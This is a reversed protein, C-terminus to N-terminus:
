KAVVCPKADCPDILRGDPRFFADKQRNAAATRRPDEHSDACRADAAQEGKSQSACVKRYEASETPPINAKPPPLTGADFYLLMSNSSPLPKATGLAYFPHEDPHRGTALAPMKVTAGITRAEIEAAVTTVQHDGFAVDLAVQHRQTLPYPHSTLHQAYGNTEARDWLMQLVGYLLAQDIPNPYAARLVGLYQTFDVSRSLLLSYNMGPVGLVARTWETSVATAAGGNISGMSNGDFYVEQPDIVSNGGATRFAENARFGQPHRMLRALFLTNLIGQQGRDAITPFKSLNGLVALANPVDETSLGIWNTACFMMNNASATVAVARDEAESASGLLGHGYVVPRTTGGSGNLAATPIQCSFAATFPKPQRVPLGDEGLVFQSGPQGTGTLYLPVEFTGRVRRGVGEPLGTAITDTVTFKPSTAGLAGFADDRLHLMRGALTRASAVTFDWASQLDGRDIGAKTLGAFLSEMHPRRSEVSAITTTLRDRYALFAETPAIPAGAKTRLSRFAVGIRHGEPFSAAGRLILVQKGAPANSDLEAWHALRKGTTLDVLVSPSAPQMSRAIEGIPAVKSAAPDVGAFMAMVPSGPSFGDNRNWETVDLPVGSSNALQGTPLAVRKGTNASPDDRTFRDSPFPLLCATADLEECRGDGVVTAIAAQEAASAARAQPAKSAATSTSPAGPPGKTADVATTSCGTAVLALTALAAAANRFTSM